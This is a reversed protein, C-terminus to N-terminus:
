TFLITAAKTRTAEAPAMAAWAASEAGMLPQIESLMHPAFCAPEPDAQTFFHMSPPMAGTKTSSCFFATQLM